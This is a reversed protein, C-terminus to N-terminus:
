YFWPTFDIINIDIFKFDPISIIAVNNCNEVMNYASLQLKNEFYVSKQNSKFDCIYTKNRYNLKIDYRGKFYKNEIIKEVSLIEKDEIFKQYKNFYDDNIFPKNYLNYDEIQKHLSTGNIMSKKRYDELKIGDLGIKNAWNLLGPKDLMGILETVSPKM